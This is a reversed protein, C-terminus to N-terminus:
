YNNILKLTITKKTFTQDKNIQREKIEYEIPATLVLLDLVQELTEDVFTATYRFDYLLTDDLKIDVNYWRGLRKTVLDMPDNRFVLKGNIWSTYKNNEIKITESKKDIKEIPEIKEDKERSYENTEEIINELLTIKNKEKDYITHQYPQMKYLVIESNKDEKKILQVQGTILTTEYTNDNNYATVNFTTGLAKVSIEGLNVYFPKNTNEPVDFFAEGTLFVERDNGSFKEPYKITSGSNLWVETGDPLNIKSRTGFAAFTEHYIEIEPVKKNQIYIYYSVALLVPLIIIASIRQWYGWIPISRKFEPIRKKLNLRAKDINVQQMIGLRTGLEWLAKTQNFETANEDNASIRSNIIKKETESASGDLYRIILQEINNTTDM